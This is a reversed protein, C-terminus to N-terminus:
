NDEWRVGAIYEGLKVNLADVHKQKAKIFPHIYYTKGKHEVSNTVPPNIIGFYIIWKDYGLAKKNIVKLM